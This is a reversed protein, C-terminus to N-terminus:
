GGGFSLTKDARALMEVLGTMTIVQVGELLKIPSNDMGGETTTHVPSNGRTMSCIQCSYIQAGKKIVEAIKTGFPLFDKQSRERMQGYVAEGYLFIKVAHGKELARLAVRSMHDAYQNGYSPSFLM